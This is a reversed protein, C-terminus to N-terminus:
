LCDSNKRARYVQRELHKMYISDYLVYDEADPKKWKAHRKKSDRVTAHTLVEKNKKLKNKKIALYNEMMYTSWM